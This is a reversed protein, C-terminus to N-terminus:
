EANEWRPPTKGWIAPAWEELAIPEGPSLVVATLYGDLQELGYGGHPVARQELLRDLDDIRPDATRFWDPKMPASYRIESTRSQLAESQRDRFGSIRYGIDREEDTLSSASCRISQGAGSGM